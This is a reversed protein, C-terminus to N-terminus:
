GIVIQLKKADAAPASAVRIGDLEAVLETSVGEKYTIVPINKM